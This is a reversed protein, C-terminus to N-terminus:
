KVTLKGQMGAQRHGDVSCYFTYTGPKLNVTIKSTGGGQVVPGKQDIGNGTVAINHGIPENNKTELTVQGATAQADKYQFLLGGAKNVPIALVGGSEKATGAAKAGTQALRGTDQGPAGAAEGVYAAVDAADAGTVLGPPMLPLTQHTQPDTQPVRSPHAIQGKVMGAITSNKFGDRRARQFAEDLNPGVTGKTGARALTHCTGCKSVFLEKGNVVNNHATGLGGCGTAVLAAAACGGVILAHRTGARRDGEAGGRRM